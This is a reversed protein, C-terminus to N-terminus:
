QHPRVDEVLVDLEHDQPVLDCDQAGVLGRGRMSRASRATNAARMRRNGGASRQWRRAVGFVIRRQCRRRTRRLHVEGLRVARGGILSTMAAKITRIARSFGRQLYQPDLRTSLEAM